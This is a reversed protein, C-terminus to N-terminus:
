FVSLLFGSAVFSFMLQDILSVTSPDVDLSRNLRTLLGAMRSPRKSRTLKGRPLTAESFEPLPRESCVNKAYSDHWSFCSVPDLTLSGPSEDNSQGEETASVKELGNHENVGARIIIIMIMIRLSGFHHDVSQTRAQLRSRSWWRAAGSWFSFLLRTAAPSATSM